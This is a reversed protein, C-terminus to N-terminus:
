YINARYKSDDDNQAPITSIKRLVTLADNYSAISGHVLHELSTNLTNKIAVCTMGAAQAAKFGVHSDEFVLCEHPLVNLKKATYLFIDPSPKPKNQVDSISYLHEGFLNKLGMKKQILKFYSKTANTAVGSPINHSKILSHFEIFGPVFIMSDLAMINAQASIDKGISRSPVALNYLKKIKSASDLTSVGTMAALEHQTQSAINEPVGHKIVVSTLIDLWNKNSEIITGDMDFIFAKFKKSIDKM